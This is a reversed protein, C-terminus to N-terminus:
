FLKFNVWFWNVKRNKNHISQLIINIVCLAGFVINM